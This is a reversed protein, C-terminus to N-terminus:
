ADNFVLRPENQGRNDGDVDDKANKVLAIDMRDCNKRCQRGGAYTRDERQLDAAGLKTDDSEDADDKEDANYLLVRDHHDVERQFCLSVFVLLREVRDILRAQQAEPWDHHGGERRKNPPSGSASPLPTPASSRRGSPIVM